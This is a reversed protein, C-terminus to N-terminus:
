CGSDREALATSDDADVCPVAPGRSGLPVYINVAHFWGANLGFLGADLMYSIWTLPHWNSYFFTTLAWGIGAASLGAKVWPNEYVYQDDDYAVFGYHFTQAYVLLVAAALALCIGAQLQMSTRPVPTVIRERPAAERARKREKM